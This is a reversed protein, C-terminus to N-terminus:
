KMERGPPAPYGFRSLSAALEQVRHMIKTLNGTLLRRGRVVVRGAAIVTDVDSGRASYVVHSEPHFMPVLHPPRPDILILDAEKGPELSGIRDGLGIASAGGRTAMTLVTRANLATPNGSVVKHLKAAIDMERFMDLTNNSACGDTGLGTRINKELLEPVRAVGSALKMNSQPNHSVAAGSAAITELDADSLWTCHVLLTGPDLLGLEHLYQVPSQGTERIFRQFEDRTESVHIQFLVNERRAARKAEQLTNPSCSYAAHCFISPRVRESRDRWRHVHALATRVNESPREVGPAPFDVVGQGLVGRLGMRQVWRAVESEFFYGDCCTTTGSLLMEACGLRAGWQVTDADLGEKEAPFMHENLWTELPLDDALGRFLTMPLHTHTNVLGPMVIGGGADITDRAPPLRHRPLDREISELRGDAICLCGNRIVEFRSDVTLVVANHVVIDFKM